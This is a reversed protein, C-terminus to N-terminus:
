PTGNEHQRQVHDRLSEIMRHACLVTGKLSILDRESVIRYAKVTTLQSGLESASRAAMDLFRVYELPYKSGRGEAINDSISEASRIMQDRLEAHGRPFRAVLERVRVAIHIAAQWARVSEPSSM